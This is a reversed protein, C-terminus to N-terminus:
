PQGICCNATNITEGEIDGCVFKAIAIIMAAIAAMSDQNMISFGANPHRFGIKAKTCRLIACDTANKAQLTTSGTLIRNFKYDHNTRSQDNAVPEALVSDTENRLKLSPQEIELRLAMFREHLKSTLGCPKAADHSGSIVSISTSESSCM